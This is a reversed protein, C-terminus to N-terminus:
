TIVNTERTIVKEKYRSANAVVCGPSKAHLRLELHLRVIARGGSVRARAKGLHTHQEIKYAQQQNYHSARVCVCVCVCVCVILCEAICASLLESLSWCLFSSL